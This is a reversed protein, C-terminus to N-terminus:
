PVGSGGGGAVVNDSQGVLSLVILHLGSTSVNGLVPLVLLKAVSVSMSAIETAACVYFM